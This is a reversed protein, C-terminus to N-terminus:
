GATSARPYFWLVTPHGLVDAPGRTEGTHATAVFAPLAVAEDPVTGHLSPLGSGTDATEVVTDATDATDAAHATDLPAATEGPEPSPKTCALLALLLISM